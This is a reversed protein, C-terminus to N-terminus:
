SNPPARASFGKSLFSSIEKEQGSLTISSLAYSELFYHDYAKLQESECLQCEIVEHHTDDDEELSHLIPDASLGIVFFLSLILAFKHKHILMSNLM